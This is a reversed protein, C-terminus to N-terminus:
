APAARMSSWSFIIEGRRRRTKERQRRGWRIAEWRAGKRPKDFSEVREHINLSVRVRLNQSVSTNKQKKFTSKDPPDISTPNFDIIRHNKRQSDRTDTKLKSFQILSTILFDYFWFNENIKM